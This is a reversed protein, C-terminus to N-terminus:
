IYLLIASNRKERAIASKITRVELGLEEITEM